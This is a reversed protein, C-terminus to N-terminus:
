TRNLSSNRKKRSNSTPRSCNKKSCKCETALQQSQKLLSRDADHGRYQQARHRHQRDIARPISATLYYVREVLRTRYGGQRPRRVVCSARDRQRPVAEVVPLSVCDHEAAFLTLIRRKRPASDSWDEGIKLRRLHDDDGDGAFASLLVMEASEEGGM